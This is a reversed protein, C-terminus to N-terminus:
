VVSEREDQTLKGMTALTNTVCVGTNNPAVSPAATHTVPSSNAHYPMSCGWAAQKLTRTRYNADEQITKHQWDLITNFTPTCIKDLAALIPGRLGKCFRQVLADNSYSTDKSVEEFRIVYKRATNAGQSIGKLKAQAMRKKELPSFRLLFDLVVQQFTAVTPQWLCECREEVLKSMIRGAWQKSRPGQCRQLFTYTQESNLTYKAAHIQIFMKVRSVYDKANDEDDLFAQPFPFKLSPLTCQTPPEGFLSWAYSEKFGAHRGLKIPKLSILNQPAPHQKLFLSLAEVSNSSTKDNNKNNDKSFTTEQQGFQPQHMTAEAPTNKNNSMVILPPTPAHSRTQPTASPTPQRQLSYAFNVPEPGLTTRGNREVWIFQPLAPNTEQFLIYQRTRGTVATYLFLCNNKDIFLGPIPSEV